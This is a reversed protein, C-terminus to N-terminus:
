RVDQHLMLRCCICLHKLLRSSPEFVALPEFLKRICTSLLSYSDFELNGLLAWCYDLIALRGGLGLAMGLERCLWSAMIVCVPGPIIM